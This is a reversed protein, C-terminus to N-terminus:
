FVQCHLERQPEAMFFRVIDMLIHTADRGKSPPNLIQCQRSSLRLDCVHNPDPTATATAYAPLQLELKVRLRPVEMFRPHPGLFVFVFLCVFLCVWSVFFSFSSMSISISLLYLHAEPLHRTGCEGCQNRKHTGGKLARYGRGLTGEGRCLM